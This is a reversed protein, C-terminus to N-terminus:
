AQGALGDAVAEHGRCFPIRVMAGQTIIVLAVAATHGCGCCDRAPDLGPCTAPDHRRYACTEGPEAAEVLRPATATGPPLATMLGPYPRPGTVRASRAAAWPRACTIGGAIATNGHRPPRGFVADFIILDITGALASRYARNDM